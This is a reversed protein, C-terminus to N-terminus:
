HQSYSLCIVSRDVGWFSHRVHVTSHRATVIIEYHARYLTGCRKLSVLHYVTLRLTVKVQFWHTSLQSDATLLQSVSMCDSRAVDTKYVQQTAVTSDFQSNSSLWRVCFDGLLSASSAVVNSSTVLCGTPCLSLVHHISIYLTHM